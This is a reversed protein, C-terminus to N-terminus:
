ARNENGIRLTIYKIVDSISFLIAADQDPIKFRFEDEMAMVIEVPELDDLGLDVVFTTSPSLKQIKVPAYEVVISIFRAAVDRSLEDSYFRQAWEHAEPNVDVPARPRKRVRTVAATVLAVLVAIAIITAIIM